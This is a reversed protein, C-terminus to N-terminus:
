GGSRPSRDELENSNINSTTKNLEIATKLKSKETENLTEFFRKLPSERLRANARSNLSELEENSMFNLKALIRTTQM